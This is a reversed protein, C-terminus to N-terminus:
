SFRHGSSGGNAAVGFFRLNIEAQMEIAPALGFDRGANREEIVHQVEDRAVAAEIKAEGGFAVQLHILMVGDFVDANSEAFGDVGREAVFFANEAGSIEQHGHVLRKGCGGDIKSAAAKTDDLCFEGR